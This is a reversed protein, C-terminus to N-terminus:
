EGNRSPRAHTCFVLKLKVRRCLSHNVVVIKDYLKHNEPRARQQSQPNAAHRRRRGGCGFCHVAIIKAKRGQWPRVFGHWAGFFPWSYGPPQQVSCSPQQNILAADGVQTLGGWSLPASLSHHIIYFHSLSSFFQVRDTFFSLCV